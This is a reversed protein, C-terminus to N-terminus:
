QTVAVQLQLPTLTKDDTCDATKELYTQFHETQRHAGYADENAYLEWFYWQTPDDEVTSAFMVLVGQEREISARMNAFVAERYAADCEPKVVVHALRLSMATAAVEDTVRLPENKKLMLQPVLAVVQRSTLGTKAFEAFALFQPAHAHVQYADEDAYLEYVYNSTVDGPLHSTFMALTGPENENSVTLNHRGVEAMRGADSEDIGLVFLRNVLGDLKIEM